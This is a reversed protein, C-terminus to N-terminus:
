PADQPSPADQVVEYEGGIIDAELPLGSVVQRSMGAVWAEIESQAPSYVVMQAPADVGHLRAHRDILALAARVYSLHEPDANNTARGWVSRLLRELRKSELLRIQARDEDGVTAALSREVAQRAITASSYGIVKSIDTYTAGAIKMAVAAEARAKPQRPVYPTLDEEEGIPQVQEYGM